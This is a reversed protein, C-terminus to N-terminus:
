PIFILEETPTWVTGDSFRVATIVGFLEFVDHHPLTRSWKVTTLRHPELSASLTHRETSIRERFVNLFVTTVQLAVVEKRTHNRLTLEGELLYTPVQDAQNMYRVRSRRVLVEEGAVTTLPFQGPRSYTQVLRVSGELLTVPAGEHNAVRARVVRDLAEAQPCAVLVSLWLFLPSIGDRM